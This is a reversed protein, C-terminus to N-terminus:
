IANLLSVTGRNIRRIIRSYIVAAAEVAYANRWRNIGNRGRGTEDSDAMVLNNPRGITQLYVVPWSKVRAFMYVCM